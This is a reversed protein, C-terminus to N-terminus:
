SCEELRSHRQLPDEQHTLGELPNRLEGQRGQVALVLAAIEKAEARIIIEM